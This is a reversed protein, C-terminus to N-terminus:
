RLAKYQTPVSNGFIEALKERTALARVKEGAALMKTWTHYEDPAMRFTPKCKRCRIYGLVAGHMPEVTTETLKVPGTGDGRGVAVEGDDGYVFKRVKAHRATEGEVEYELAKYDCNPCPVGFIRVPEADQTSTLTRARRHYRLLDLGFETIPEAAPLDNFRGGTTHGLHWDLHHLLFTCAATIEAHPRAAPKRAALHREVRITREWQGCWEAYEDLLFSAAEHDHVPTSKSGSVYESMGASVGSEIEELLRTALGPNSGDDLWDAIASRIGTTCPPCWVPEGEYAQLAHETDTTQRRQEAARFAANCAGPCAPATADTSSDPTDSTAQM